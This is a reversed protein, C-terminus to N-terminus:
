LHEGGTVCLVDGTQFESQLLFLLARSIDATTGMTRLPVREALRRAFSPDGDAPPLIAGPAIANVRVRPALEQALMRTLAVLAAKTMTYVLHGAPPRLARWDVINVLQAPRAAGLQAAFAQSLFLPAKMNISVHRDFHDEDVSDLTAPEFIAASNVLIDLPGLAARAREVVGAVDRAAGRFDGGIAAAAVGLSQIERVTQEAASKSSGYHVAVAAGAEALSLALAKGLRVAGGTVLAVRGALTV